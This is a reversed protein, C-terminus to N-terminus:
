GRPHHQQHLNQLRQRAVHTYIQTTSLDSHGLLLQVVRLDAGHDLLHTAFAHRLTHPSIGVHIGAKHAIAKIRYWLAQRTIAKGARGPFLVNSNGQGALDSRGHHLYRQCWYLAEEGIPVIREKNGKGILRIVGQQMSLQSVKLQTLESIRLGSAYLIELMTRDRLGLTTNVDPVQLLKDIDKNSLTAPLKHGVKVQKVHVTPDSAILRERLLYRYLGRLASLLRAVSRHARGQNLLQAIFATVHQREVKLLHINQQSLWRVFHLTDCRYAHLTHVSLKKELWSADLFAEIEEPYPIQNANLM